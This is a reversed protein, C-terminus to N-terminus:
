GQPDRVGRVKGGARETTWCGYCRPDFDAHAGQIRSGVGALNAWGDDDPDGIAKAIIKVAERLSEKTATEAQGSATGGKKEEAEM